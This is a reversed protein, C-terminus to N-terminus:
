LAWSMVAGFEGDTVCIEYITNTELDTPDFWGPFKVTSPITLVTVSTGSTFRVISIGSAPPTFSLSTVEGCVYRTNEVGTIVPDTGSVDVTGTSGDQVGLMAKISAKANDTYTGVANSSASQTTDGAAEALGYFVSKHQNLPTIPKFSAVGIKVDFDSAPAITLYGNYLYLGTGNNGLKYVGYIDQGGIPITATGDSVISTGDVQVDGVAGIMNRIAASADATYTGVANDSQAQTTDGAAKALGYFVSKHQNTPMVPRRESNSAKYQADNAGVVQLNGDERMGIGYTSYQDLKAVGLHDYGIMPINAIGNTTISTGNVQVDGVAGLMTRIATKAEDTYTGVTNDSAAQTTDGAAKALGYFTSEHQYKPVIASTENTGAKVKATAAASIYMKGDSNINLGAAPETFVLGPTSNTALPITAINNQVVSTGNVQVDGVKTALAANMDAMTPVEIGEPATEPLWIKTDADTPQTDQVAIVNDSTAGIMSRIASKATDTYQGVPNDSVSQTSDGAAKALGYFTAQHQTTATIPAYQQNGSKIQANSAPNIALQGATEGGWVSIGYTANGKVIGLSTNTAVDTKKVFAGAVSTEECNADDGDTIIAGDVPIAATAKYLKGNATFVEGAAYAKDATLDNEDPALMTNTGLMSQIAGQAEPTYTGLSEASDKEDHGAAKALGYFTAKEQNSAVIPLYAYTGEKIVTDTAGRISPSGNSITIGKSEAGRIVGLNNNSAAPINAVGNAAVSSGNVRVDTVPEVQPTVYIDNEDYTVTVGNVTISGNTILEAYQTQSLYVIQKSNAM